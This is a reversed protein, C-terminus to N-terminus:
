SFELGALDDHLFKEGAFLDAEDHHRVVFTGPLGFGRLIVLCDEGFPWRPGLVTRM